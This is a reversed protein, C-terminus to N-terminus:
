RECLAIVWPFVTKIKIKNFYRELLAKFQGVSWNWLHEPPRGWRKINKGRLLNCISFYPELPVSFICYKRCLRRAESIAMEPNSLHELIEIGLVLDFSQDSYNLSTIDGRLFFAEPCLKRALVIADESIDIGEIKLNKNKSILYRVVFGEGCGIDLVKNINLSNVLQNIIKLFRNLPM